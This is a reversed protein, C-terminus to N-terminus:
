APTLVRQSSEVLTITVGGMADSPTPWDPTSGACAHFATRLTDMATKVVPHLQDEDSEVVLSITFAATAGESIISVDQADLARLHESVTDLWDELAPDSADTAAFTFSADVAYLTM